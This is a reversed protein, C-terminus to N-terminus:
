SSFWTIPMCGISVFSALLRVVYEIFNHNSTRSGASKSAGKAYLAAVSRAVPSLFRTRLHALQTSWKWSVLLFPVRRQHLMCSHPFRNLTAAYAARCWFPRYFLSTEFSLM